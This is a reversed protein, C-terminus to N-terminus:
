KKMSNLETFPSDPVPYLLAQEPENIVHSAVYESSFKPMNNHTPTIIINKFELKLQRQLTCYKGGTISQILAEFPILFNKICM